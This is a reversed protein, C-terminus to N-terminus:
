GLGAALQDIRRGIADVHAALTRLEAGLRANDRIHEDIDAEVAEAWDALRQVVATDTRAVYHKHFSLDARTLSEGAQKVRRRYASPTRSFTNRFAMGFGKVDAFGTDMAIDAIRRDGSGLERVAHALRVRTMYDSTTIGMKRSFADSLYAPSYSAARALDALSIREPYHADIYRTVTRVLADDPDEGIAHAPDANIVYHRLLIGVIDALDREWAAWDAPHAGQRTLMMRALLARVRSYPERDRTDADTALAFAMDTPAFRAVYDPSIHLLCAVSREGMSLTAHGDQSNILALDGAESIWTKGSVCVEISGTVVLLLEIDRHWNYHYSGIEYAYQKVSAGGVDRSLYFEDATLM